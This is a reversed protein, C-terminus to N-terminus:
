NSNTVWLIGEDNYLLSALDTEQTGNQLSLNSVYGIGFGLILIIALAFAPKPSWLGALWEGFSLREPRESTERGQSGAATIIRQALDSSPEEMKRQQLMREFHREAELLDKLEISTQLADKAREKIEEPWSELDAGYIALYKKFEDLNM